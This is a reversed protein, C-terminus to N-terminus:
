RMVPRTRRPAIIGERELLEGLARFGERRGLQLLHGGPITVHECHFHDVIRLAHASPTIRDNAAAVVLACSASMRLPRALPSVVWNAKELARHQLEAEVGKGLRGQERAFDAISALPIMPMVFDSEDSVTAVLASTYGGLSAGMVGVKPAGRARLFRALAVVDSVAQRFGENTLRADSSPFPPPGRRAGARPGHFPLIPLAVDLGRRALWELPWHAEEVVWSGSMYGHLAIVAPRNPGASRLRAWATRNEVNALYREGVAAAHPEYTSQWRADVVGTSVERLVPDIAKPLPFFGDLDAYLRSTEDLAVIRESHTM